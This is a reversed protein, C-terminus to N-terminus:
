LPRLGPATPGALADLIADLTAAQLEALRDFAETSLDEGLREEVEVLMMAFQLSDVGLDFLDADGDLGALDVASSEEAVELLVQRLQDRTPV